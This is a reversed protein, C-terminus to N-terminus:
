SDTPPAAAPKQQERRYLLAALTLSIAIVAFILASPTRTTPPKWPWPYQFFAFNLTFYFWAALLLAWRTFSRGTQGRRSRNAFYFGAVIMIAMPIILFYIWGIPVPFMNTDYSMEKLTKGAIPLALIPFSVLYPWYRGGVIGILPIMGMTLAIDAVRDFLRMSLFTWAAVALPHMVLLSWEIGPTIDPPEDKTAFRIHRRNLYVGLALGGGMILGFTIEMMNWWNMYQDFPLFPENWARHAQISQGISFGFGGSPIGILGMTAAVRDRKVLGTYVILGILAFWFGGWSEPRPKWNPNDKGWFDSFYIRPLEPPSFPQNLLHNGVFLLGIMAFMLTMMELPRYRKGGLGMGLFGGALGIWVGGKIFTGLLGWWYTTERIAADQSLGLTQGYTQAGGFSIGVATLAVVRAAVLSSAGPCFLFAIVLGVLLGAIMAGTEHGYQGRIGWGMGGAMATLLMALWLPPTDAPALGVPDAASADVAIVTPAVPRDAPPLPRNPISTM